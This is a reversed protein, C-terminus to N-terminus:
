KKSKTTTFSWTQSWAEQNVTAKVSVTYTTGPKLPAKAILCVTNRQYGKHDGAPKEPTSLYVEVEKGAGDKLSATVDKVENDESFIVTVPYGANKEKDEPIPTPYEPGFKLPVDKQQDAPYLVPKTSDDGKRISVTDVVFFGGYKGGKAFGLGVKTLKPDLLPIRHFLSAMWGNVAGVLDGTPFIVSSAGAKAGEKTYGPLEPDEKHMGLGQTSPHNANKALYQAHALCAKSLAPDASVLELGATKRFWNIRELAQKEPDESQQPALTTLLILVPTLM